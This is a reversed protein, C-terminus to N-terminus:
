SPDPLREIGRTSLDALAASVSRGAIVRDPAIEALPVLVFAREFLRPHPLTLEPKDISVDDYAILDLDLTRPGWRRESIRDRGFKKEIRHLTFLLARPDLDTEIEICANIFAAQQEDGWPPTSYDSSRALLAGQTMGCINAIAKQFTARVDGVNGGLAILVDAM